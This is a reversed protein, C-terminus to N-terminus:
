PAPPPGPPLPPTAAGAYDPAGYPPQGPYAPPLGPAPGGPYRILPPQPTGKTVPFYNVYGPFGIGTNPRVDLGTGFGTDTVLYKVPFNASADPLSGCSPRGGPGGKAQVRPLNDPFRYPDDGFLLGGDINLSKGNGGMAARGGNELYWVAGEFTCKYTPSYKDLLEFTPAVLNIASVLNQENRGITNIGANSFGIADLLLENLAKKNNTITVSTTTFSDLTSLIDQAAVSYAAATKGFLQWDKRITAQKPNVAVLFQNGGSIAQGIRDGKGRFGDALASLVGNLKAPDIAHVISQLNEFVTNVEVTTNRSHLVAGKALERHSAGSAPVILDVYKAGFATSSKIEAEINSPLFRFENPYIKLKLKSLNTGASDAYSEVKAVEGIQVGRLKVKADDEMVLGARDSIVTLPVTTKLTGEFAMATLTSVTVVVLVLVPAWWIPDIGRRRRTEQAM